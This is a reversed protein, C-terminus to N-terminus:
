FWRAPPTSIETFAEYCLLQLVRRTHGTLLPHESRWPM